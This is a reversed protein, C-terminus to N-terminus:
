RVAVGHIGHGLWTRRDCMGLPARGSLNQSDPAEFATSFPSADSVRCVVANDGQARDDALPRADATDAEAARGRM